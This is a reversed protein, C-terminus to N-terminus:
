VTSFVNTTSKSPGVSKKDAYSQMFSAGGSKASTNEFSQIYLDIREVLTSRYAYFIASCITLGLCALSNIQMSPPAFQAIATLIWGIVFIFVPLFQELKLHFLLLSWVTLSRQKEVLVMYSYNVIMMDLLIMCNLGPIHTYTYLISVFITLCIRIAFPVGLFVYLMSPQLNLTGVMMNTMKYVISLLHQLFDIWETVVFNTYFHALKSNRFKKQAIAFYTIHICGGLMFITIVQCSSIDTVSPALLGENIFRM